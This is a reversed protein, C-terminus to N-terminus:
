HCSPTLYADHQHRVARSGSPYALNMFDAGLLCRALRLSGNTFHGLSERRGVETKLGNRCRTNHKRLTGGDARFQLSGLSSAGACRVPGQVASTSFRGAAGRREPRGGPPPTITCGAPVEPIEVSNVVPAPTARVGCPRLWACAVLSSRRSEKWGKLPDLLIRVEGSFILTLSAM